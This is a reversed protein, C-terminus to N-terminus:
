AGSSCFDPQKLVGPLGLAEILCSDSRRKRPFYTSSGISAWGIREAMTVQTERALKQLLM